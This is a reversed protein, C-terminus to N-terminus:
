LISGPAYAAAEPHQKVIEEIRGVVTGVQDAAAGTFSLKDAMLAELEALDLPIREDAALSDLLENREAGQERMALAGAVAHEKIAEHAIERGVGARVAGM